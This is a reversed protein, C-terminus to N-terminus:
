LKLSLPSLSYLSFFVQQVAVFGVCRRAKGITGGEKEKDLKENLITKLWAFDNYRRTVVFHKGPYDKFNTQCLMLFLFPGHHRNKPILRSIASALFFRALRVETTITYLTYLKKGNEEVTKPATVTITIFELARRFLFRRFNTWLGM